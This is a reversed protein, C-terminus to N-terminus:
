VAGIKRSILDNAARSHYPVIMRVEGTARGIATRSALCSLSIAVL